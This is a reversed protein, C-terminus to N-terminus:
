RKARQSRKTDLVIEIDTLIRNVEDKNESVPHFPLLDGKEVMNQLQDEIEDVSWEYQGDTQNSIEPFEEVLLSSLEKVDPVAARQRWEKRCKDSLAYSFSLYDKLVPILANSRDIPMKNVEDLTQLVNSGIEIIKRKAVEPYSACESSKVFSLPVYLNHREGKKTKIKPGERIMSRLQNSPTEFFPKPIRYGDLTKSDPVLNRIFGLIAQSFPEGEPSKAIGKTCYKGLIEALKYGVFVTTYTVKNGAGKSEVKRTRRGSSVASGSLTLNKYEDRDQYIKELLVFDVANKILTEAKELETRRITASLPNKSLELLRIIITEIAPNKACTDTSLDPVTEDVDSDISVRDEGLKALFIERILQWVNSDATSEAKPLRFKDGTVGWNRPAYLSHKMNKVAGELSLYPFVINANAIGWLYLVEPSKCKSKDIQSMRRDPPTRSLTEALAAIADSKLKGDAVETQYVSSIKSSLEAILTKQDSIM